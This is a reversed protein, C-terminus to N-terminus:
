ESFSKTNTYNTIDRCLSIFYDKDLNNKILNIGWITLVMNSPIYSKASDIRDVSILDFDRKCTSKLKLARGSYFCKGKQKDFLEIIHASTVIFDEKYIHKNRQRITTAIRSCAWEMDSLKPKAERIKRNEEKEKLWKNQYYINFCSECLCRRGKSSRIQEFCKRCLRQAPPLMKLGLRRVINALSDISIQLKESCYKEGAKPYWERLFEEATDTIKIM